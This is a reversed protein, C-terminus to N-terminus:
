HVMPLTSPQEVEGADDGVASQRSFPTQKNILLDVLLDFFQSWRIGVFAVLMGLKAVVNMTIFASVETHPSIMGMYAALYMLGYALFIVVLGLTLVCRLDRSPLDYRTSARFDRVWIAMDVSAWVYMVLSILILAWGIPVPEVFHAAWSFIIYVNTVVLPRSVQKLPRQLAFKGALILLMPVTVLWEAYIASYMPRGNVGAVGHACAHVFHLGAISVNEMILVTFAVCLLLPPVFTSEVGRVMGILPQASRWTLRLSTTEICFATTLACLAYSSFANWPAEHMGECVPDDRCAAPKVLMYAAAFTTVTIAIWQIVIRWEGAEGEPKVLRHGTRLSAESVGEEGLHVLAPAGGKDFM